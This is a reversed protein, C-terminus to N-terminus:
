PLPEKRLKEYMIPMDLNVRYDDLMRQSRATAEKQAMLEDELRENWRMLEYAFNVMVKTMPDEGEPELMAWGTERRYCPLYRYQDGAMDKFRQAHLVKYAEFAVDDMSEEM